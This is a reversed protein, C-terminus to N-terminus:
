VKPQMVTAHHNRINHTSAIHGICTHTHQLGGHKETYALLLHLLPAQYVSPTGNQNTNPITGTWLSTM